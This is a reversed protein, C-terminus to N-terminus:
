NMGPADKRAGKPPKPATEDTTDLPKPPPPASSGACGTAIFSLLLGFLIARM